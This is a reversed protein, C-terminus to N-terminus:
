LKIIKKGIKGVALTALGSIIAEVMGNTFIIGMIFALLAQYSLNMAQAYANGFFVYILAMVLVTNVLSGCIGCITLNMSEKMKTKNLTEHLVGCLFGVLIRPLFAIIFSSWNGSVGGVTIFPSFVFSTANPSTTSKMMSCFGFVFGLIAGEKKGLLVGALIVPIHLTTANIVGVPIFGLFPVVSMVIEIAIFLALYTFRKTKSNTM